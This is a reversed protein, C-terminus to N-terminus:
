KNKNFSNLFNHYDSETIPNKTSEYDSKNDNIYKNRSEMYLEKVKVVLEESTKPIEIYKSLNVNQIYNDLSNMWDEYMNSSIMEAAETMLNYLKDLKETFTSVINEFDLLDTISSIEENTLAKYNILLQKMKDVKQKASESLSDYKELLYWYDRIIFNITSDSLIDYYTNYIEVITEKAKLINNYEEEILKKINHELYDKKYKQVIEDESLNEPVSSEIEYTKLEEVYSIFEDISTINTNYSANYLELNLSEVFVAVYYGRQCVYDILTSELTKNDGNVSSVTMQDNKNFYGLKIYEDVIIKVGEDINMGVLSEVDLGLVILDGDKNASKISTIKDNETTIIVSPNVEIVYTDKVDKNLGVIFIALVFLVMFSLMPIVVKYFSFKPKTIEETTIPHNKLKESMPKIRSDFESNLMKELDKM